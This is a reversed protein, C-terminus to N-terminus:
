ANPRRALADAIAARTAADLTSDSGLERAAKFAILEQRTNEDLVGPQAFLSQKALEELARQALAIETPGDIVGGAGLSYNRRFRELAGRTLPGLDGDDNLRESETANLLAHSITPLWKRGNELVSRVNPRASEVPYLELWEQEWEDWPGRGWVQRPWELSLLFRLYPPPHVDTWSVRLVQAPPLALIERIGAAQASGAACFTWFDPGIESSWLAFLDALLTLIL